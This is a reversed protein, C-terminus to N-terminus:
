KTKKILAKSRARSYALARRKKTSLALQKQAAVEAAKKRAILEAEQKKREEFQRAELKVTVESQLEADEYELYKEFADPYVFMKCGIEGKFDIYIYRNDISVVDGAGWIIHKVKGNM